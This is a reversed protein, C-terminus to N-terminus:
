CHMVVCERNMKTFCKNTQIKESKAKKFNWTFFPLKTFIFFKGIYFSPHSIIIFFILNSFSTISSIWSFELKYSSLFKTAFFLSFFILCIKSLHLDCMRWFSPPPVCYSHRISTNKHTLSLAFTVNSASPILQQVKYYKL